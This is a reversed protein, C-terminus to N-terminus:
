NLFIFEEISNEAIWKYLYQKNEVAMLKEIDVVLSIGQDVIYNLMLLDFQFLKKRLIDNKSNKFIGYIYDGSQNMIPTGNQILFPLKIVELTPNLTIHTNLNLGSIDYGKKSVGESIEMNYLIWEYEILCLLEGVLYNNNKIFIILETAIKHFEAENAAHNLIFDDIIRKQTENDLKQSLLPFTQKLVDQVHVRVINRYIIVSLDDGSYEVKRILNCLKDIQFEVKAPVVYSSM